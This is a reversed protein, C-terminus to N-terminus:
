SSNRRYVVTSSDAYLRRQRAISDRLLIRKTAAAQRWSAFHTLEPAFDDSVNLNQASSTHSFIRSSM